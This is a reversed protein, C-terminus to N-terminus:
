RETISEEADAEPRPYLVEHIVQLLDDRGKGTEASSIIPVAGEPLGYHEAIARSSKLLANYKLKDTKTLALIAPINHHELFDVLQDDLESPERRADLLLVILRLSPNDQLYADIMLRWKEIEGKPAKAYGYGPLDVYYYRENVLFYNILRTRGPTNSAKALGRRRTLMNLLSSKGVNSRGAFAIQPMGDKVFHERSAGSKVFEASQIEWPKNKSM